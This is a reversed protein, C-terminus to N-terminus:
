KKGKKEYENLATAIKETLLETDYRWSEKAVKGPQGPAALAAAVRARAEVLPWQPLLRIGSREEFGLEELVREVAERGTAQALAAEARHARDEWEDKIAMDSGKKAKCEEHKKEFWAVQEFLNPLTHDPPMYIAETTGCGSCVLRWPSQGIEISCTMKM